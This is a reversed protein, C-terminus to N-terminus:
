ASIAQARLMIHIEALVSSVAMPRRGNATVGVFAAAM